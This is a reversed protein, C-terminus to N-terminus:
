ARLSKPGAAQELRLVVIWFDTKRVDMNRKEAPQCKM